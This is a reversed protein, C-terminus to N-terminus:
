EIWGDVEEGKNVWEDDMREMTRDTRKANTRENMGDM